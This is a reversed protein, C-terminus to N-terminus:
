KFLQRQKELLMNVDFYFGEINAENEAVKLYDCGKKTLSQSGEFQFGLFNILDYEHSVSIVHWASKEKLGDGTSLIAEMVMELQYEAKMAALTDGTQLNAYALINLDRPNFPAKELILKELRVVEAFDEESLEEQRLLTNLSDSHTSFGYASYDKHFLFGYYLHRFDELTLEIDAEKFRNLLKTYYRESEPDSISIEIKKYDPKEIAIDQGSAFHGLLLLLIIFSYSKM